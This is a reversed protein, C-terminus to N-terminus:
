CFYDINPGHGVESGWGVGACVCVFASMCAHMCVCACLLVGECKDPELNAPEALHQIDVCGQVFLEIYHYNEEPIVVNLVTSFRVGTLRLGTEEEVERQGCEEWSERCPVCPLIFYFLYCHSLRTTLLRERVLRWSGAVLKRKRDLM